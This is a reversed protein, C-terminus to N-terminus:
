STEITDPRSGLRSRSMSIGRLEEEPIREAFQKAIKRYTRADTALRADPSVNERLAKKIGDFKPGTIHFSRVTGDREVLSFVQEKHSPGPRKKMGPKRGSYTEDAEVV